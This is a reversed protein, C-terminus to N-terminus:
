AANQGEGGRRRSFAWPVLTGMPGLLALNWLPMSLLGLAATSGKPNIFASYHMFMDGALAGFAFGASM